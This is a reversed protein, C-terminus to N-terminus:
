NLEIYKDNVAKKTLTKKYDASKLPKLTNETKLYWSLIVNYRNVAILTKWIEKIEKLTKTEIAGYENVQQIAICELRPTLIGIVKLQSSPQIKFSARVSISM